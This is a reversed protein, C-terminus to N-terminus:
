KFDIVAIYTWLNPRPTLLVVYLLQETSALDNNRMEDRWKVDRRKQERSPLQNESGLNIGSEDM